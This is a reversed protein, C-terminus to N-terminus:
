VPRPMHADLLEKFRAEDLHVGKRGLIEDFFPDEGGETIHGSVALAAKVEEGRHEGVFGMNLIRVTESFGSGWLLPELYKLVVLGTRFLIIDGYLLYIDWLRSSLELPIMSAFITMFWDPLYNEPTLALNKFHLYLKPLNEAFIVNFVKFFGQIKKEDSDYLASLVQSNSIMNILAVFTDQSNMNLLLVGALFSAGRPYTLNPRYGVYAHLVKRLSMFLPGDPQFVCLSPLTRVIDEEIAKNLFNILTPDDMTKDNAEEEEHDEEQSSTDEDEDNNGDDLEINVHDEELSQKSDLEMASRGSMSDSYHGGHGGVSSSLSYTSSTREMSVNAFEIHKDEEEEEEETTVADEEGSKEDKSDERLVDLSSTRRQRRISYLSTEAYPDYTTTHSTSVIPMPPGHSTPSMLGHNNKSSTRIAQPVRRICETFTAKTINLTNGIKLKWIKKRCRPPIGQTWLILTRKDGARTKWNPIIDNEWVHQAHNIKKDKEEKKRYSEKKKRAELKKAKRMMAEYEQLHKKEEQPDKPPLM